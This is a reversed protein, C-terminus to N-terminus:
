TRMKSLLVVTSVCVSVTEITSDHWWIFPICFHSVCTTSSIHCFFGWFVYTPTILIANLWVTLELRVCYSASSNVFFMFEYFGQLRYQHAESFLVL